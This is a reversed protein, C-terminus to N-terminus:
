KMSVISPDVYVDCLVLCVANGVHHAFIKWSKYLILSWLVFVLTLLPGLRRFKYCTGGNQIAFNTGCQPFYDMVLKGIHVM